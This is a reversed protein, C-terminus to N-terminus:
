APTQQSLQEAIIQAATKAYRSAAEGIEQAHEPNDPSFQDLIKSNGLVNSLAGEFTALFIEERIQDADLLVRLAGKTIHTAITATRTAAKIPDSDTTKGWQTTRAATTKLAILLIKGALSM